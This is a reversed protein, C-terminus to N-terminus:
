YSSESYHPFGDHKFQAEPLGQAKLAEGLQDVMQEPGSVYVLSENLNPEAELLKEATLPESIVYKIVLNPDQRVWQDLEEKFPVEETRLGYILTAKLPLGDHARQKLISHYPTVGIGAAVFIIPLESEQWVFDGEPNEILHLVDGPDLKSLAQKFTSDTIRTSIQMVGEYPAASNTFWRKTGEEDPNEHPLEVRVYQGATWVLPESPQFRFIWINDILHQKEILTLQM